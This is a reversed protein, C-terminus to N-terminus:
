GGLGGGMNFLQMTGPGFLAAKGNRALVKRREDEEADLQAKVQDGLGLDTAAPSLGFNKKNPLPM